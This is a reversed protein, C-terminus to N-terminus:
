NKVFEHFQVAVPGDAVVPGNARAEGANALVALSVDAPLTEASAGSSRYTRRSLDLTFQTSTNHMVAESRARRLAASIAQAASRAHVAPSVPAHGTTLLVMVLGMIAIVVLMEILTFGGSPDLNSRSTM